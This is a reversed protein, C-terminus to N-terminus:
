TGSGLLPPTKGTKYAEVLSAAIEDHVNRGNPLLVDPLFEREVTSVGLSIAELKARTLLLIARWRERLAQAHLRDREGTSTTHQYGRRMVRDFDGVRPIPVQMRVWRDALSFVCIALGKEDDAGIQRQKAGHKALLADLEARSKEVSVSTKAAYTM